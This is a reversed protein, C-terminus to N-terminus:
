SVSGSVHGRTVGSVGGCVTLTDEGYRRSFHCVDPSVVTDTRLPVIQTVVLFGLQLVSM